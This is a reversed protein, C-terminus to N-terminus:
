CLTLGSSKCQLELDIMNFLQWRLSNTDVKATKKGSMWGLLGTSSKPTDDLETKLKQLLIKYNDDTIDNKTEVASKIINFVSIVNKQLYFRYTFGDCELSVFKRSTISDKDCKRLIDLLKEKNSKAKPLPPSVESRDGFLSTANLAPLVDSRDVFLSKANTTEDIGPTSFVILTKATPSQSKQEAFVTSDTPYTPTPLKTSSPNFTDQWNPQSWDPTPTVKLVPICEGSLKMGKELAYEFLFHANHIAMEFQEKNWVLGPRTQRIQKILEVYKEALQQASLSFIDLQIMLQLVTITFIYHGTRGVGSACHVIMPKTLSIQYYELYFDKLEDSCFELDLGKNDALPLFLIEVEFEESNKSDLNDVYNLKVISKFPKGDRSNREKNYEVTVFPDEVSQYTALIYFPPSGPNSTKSVYKVTNDQSKNRPAMYDQFDIAKRGCSLQFGIAVINRVAAGKLSAFFTAVEENTKPGAAPVLNSKPIVNANYSHFTEDNFQPIFDGTSACIDITRIHKKLNGDLKRVLNDNNVQGEIFKEELKEEAIKIANSIFIKRSYKLKLKDKQKELQKLDGNRKILTYTEDWYANFKKESIFPKLQTILPLLEGAWQNLTQKDEYTRAKFILYDNYQRKMRRLIPQCQHGLHALRADTKWDNGGYGKFHQDYQKDITLKDNSADTWKKRFMDNIAPFEAEFQITRVSPRTNSYSHNQNDWTLSTSSDLVQTYKPFNYKKELAYKLLVFANRIAMKYQEKTWILGPRTKRIEHLANKIKSAATQEDLELQNESLLEVIKLTFIFQGTLGLGSVCSVGIPRELSHLYHQWFIEKIEDSSAELSFSYNSTSIFTIHLENKDSKEEIVEDSICTLKVVSKVPKTDSYFYNYPEFKFSGEVCTYSARMDYDPKEDADHQSVFKEEAEPPLIFNYFETYNNSPKDGGLREAFVIVYKTHPTVSRFLGAVASRSQPAAIAICNTSNIPSANYTPFLPNRLQPIYISHSVCEEDSQITKKAIEEFKEVQLTLDLTTDLGSKFDEEALKVVKDQWPKENYHSFM